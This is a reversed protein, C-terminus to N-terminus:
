RIQRAPQKAGRTDDAGDLVMPSVRDVVLRTGIEAPLTVTPEVNGGCWIHGWARGRGVVRQRPAFHGVTGQREIGISLLVVLMRHCLEQWLGSLQQCLGLSLDM